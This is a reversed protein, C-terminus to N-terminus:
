LDDFANVGSKLFILVVDFDSKYNICKALWVLIPTFLNTKNPLSHFARQDGGWGRKGFKIEGFGMVKFEVNVYDITDERNIEM